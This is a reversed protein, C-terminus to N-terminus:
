MRFSRGPPRQLRRQCEDRERIRGRHLDAPIRYRESLQKRDALIMVEASSVQQAVYLQAGSNKYFFKSGKIIIPDISAAFSGAFLSTTALLAAGFHKM